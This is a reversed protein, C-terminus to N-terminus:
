GVVAAISAALRAPDFPKPMLVVRPSDPIAGPEQTDAESTALVFGVGACAPDALLARAFQAGTMDALHMSSVIVGARERKALEMAERGSGTTHVVGMGLQQLYRRIIGAQTRSPEALVVTLGAVPGGVPAPGSPAPLSVEFQGTEGAGAKTAPDYVATSGSPRPPPAPLPEWVGTVAAAPALGKQVQELEKVVETMTQYRDEPTKAVMKRFVAHLEPPLDPRVERVDPIPSDRHKLLMSMISGAQYPSRGTLLFHLTCGLSYVDARQDVQGSDIAQEPSMYEATGFITGAQTLSTQGGDANLRALGLDAVKM